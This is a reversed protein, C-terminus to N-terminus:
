LMGAFMRQLAVFDDLRRQLVDVDRQLRMIQDGLSRTDQARADGVCMMGSSLGTLLAAATIAARARHSM